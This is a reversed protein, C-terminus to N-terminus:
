VISKRLITAVAKEKILVGKETKMSNLKRIIEQKIEERMQKAKLGIENTYYNLAEEVSDVYNNTIYEEEGVFDFNYEILTKYKIAFRADMGKQWWGDDHVLDM